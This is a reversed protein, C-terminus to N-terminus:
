VFLLIFYNVQEYPPEEKKYQVSEYNPDGHTVTEYDSEGPRCVSAYNPEISDHPMSEYNPESDQEFDNVRRRVRVREYGPDESSANSVQRFIM